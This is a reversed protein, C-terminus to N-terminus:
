SLSTGGFTRPVKQKTMFLTIYLCADFVVDILSTRGITGKFSPHNCDSLSWLTPNQQFRLDIIIFRQKVFEANEEQPILYAPDLVEWHGRSLRMSLTVHTILPLRELWYQYRGWPWTALWCPYPRHTWSGGLTSQWLSPTVRSVCATPTVPTTLMNITIHYDNAAERILVSLAWLWTSLM